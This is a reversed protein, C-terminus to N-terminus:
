LLILFFGENKTIYILPTKNACRNLITNSYVLLYALLYPFCTLKGSAFLRAVAGEGPQCSNINVFVIETFM